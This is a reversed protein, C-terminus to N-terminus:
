DFETAGSIWNLSQEPLLSYNYFSIREVGANALGDVLNQVTKGDGVAPYAPMVGAHLPINPTLRDTTQIRDVAAQRTSEYAIITYYDLHEALLDLDVGQMWSEEVEFFDVYRGLEVHDTLSSRLHPYLDALTDMRVDIYATLAPHARLWSAPQIDSPLNGSIIATVGERASQRAIDVDVGAEQANERCKDCFCVGFLFEGLRGLEVHYKDHHWGFGTGYFYDFTELEIRKLSSRSSLDSVVSCLYEQVA